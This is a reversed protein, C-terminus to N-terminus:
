FAEGSVPAETRSPLILCTVADRCILATKAERIVAYLSGPQQCVPDSCSSWSM